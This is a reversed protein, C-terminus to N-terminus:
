VENEVFVCDEPAKDDRFDKFQPHRFKGTPERGYHKVTIVRGLYHEPHRSITRRLEDDFGSTAGCEWLKGDRYQSFRIAGILGEAAFKTISVTGDVKESEEKADKYGTIIVDAFWENKVKVWKLHGGYEEGYKQVNHKLIIGEGGRAYIEELVERKQAYYIPVLHAYPNNWSNMVEILKEQRHYLPLFRLDEGKYFLCDFVMYNLWGREEQKRIAEPPLSGMVSTVWKSKGGAGTTFGPPVVIEGDLVTGDLNLDFLVENLQPLNDTKEVFLGNKVSKRRGTFRIKDGCFQAIRRDGDFKEEAWWDEADWMFDKLTGRANQPQIQMFSWM